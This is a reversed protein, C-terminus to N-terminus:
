PLVGLVLVTVAAVVISMLFSLANRVLAFRRGLIASEAPIQVVGVTVWAVIFATVALLSVGARLLEGGIVYSNAPNGASISGIAAGIIPDLPGGTFIKTYLDRPITVVLLSVLMLTPVLTPLARGFSRLARLFADKM